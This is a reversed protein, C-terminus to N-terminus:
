KKIFKISQNGARLIYQGKMLKSVDIVMNYTNSFQNVSLVERGMLDFIKLEKIGKSSVVHLKDTTPNPYIRSVINNDGASTPQEVKLVVVDFQKTTATANELSLTATLTVQMDEAQQNVVGDNSIVDKNSSSWVVTTNHLGNLTLGLDQTVSMANDGEQFEIELANVAEQLQAEEDGVTTLTFEKTDELDGLTIKATINGTVAQKTITVTGDNTINSHNSIWQIQTEYLGENDLVVNSSVSNANDGDVFGILLNEKAKALKGEDNMVTTLTFTKTASLEGIFVTATLDGEVEQTTITVEGNDTIQAHESAWVITSTYKGTTALGVNQSVMTAEDGEAFEIALENVVEELQAEPNSKIRLNFSKTESYIGKQITATLVVETNSVIKQVEAMGENIILADNEPVSWTIITGYTDDSSQLPFSQNVNYEQDGDALQLALNNKSFFVDAEGAEVEAVSTNDIVLEGINNGAQILLRFASLGSQMEVVDTIRVPTENISFSTSNTNVNAENEDKGQFQFRINMDTSGYVDAEMKFYKKETTLTNFPFIQSRVALNPLSTGGNTINLSVATTGNEKHTTTMFDFDEAQVFSSNFNTDWHQTGASFDNNLVIWNDSITLPLVTISFDKTVTTTNKTVSAKLTINETQEGRVVKGTTSIVSENSSEWTVVTENLGESPLDAISYMIGNGDTPDIANFTIGLNDAAEQALEEDTKSEVQVLSVNDIVISGINGGVQVFVSFKTAGVPMKLRAAYNQTNTSIFLDESAIANEAGNDWRLLYRIKDGDGGYIDASLVYETEEALTEPLNTYGGDKLQINSVSLGENIASQPISIEFANTGNEKHTIVQWTPLNDQDVSNNITVEWENGIPDEFGPNKILNDNALLANSSLLLLLSTILKKM